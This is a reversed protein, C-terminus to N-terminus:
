HKVTAKFHRRAQRRAGKREALTLEQACLVRKVQESVITNQFCNIWNDLLTTCIEDASMLINTKLRRALLTLLLNKLKAHLTRMFPEKKQSEATLKTLLEFSSHVFELEALMDNKLHIVACPPFFVSYSINQWRFMGGIIGRRM